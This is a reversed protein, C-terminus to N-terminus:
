KIYWREPNVEDAYSCSSYSIGIFECRISEKRRLTGNGICINHEIYYFINGRLGVTINTWGHWGDWGNIYMCENPFLHRSSVCVSLECNVCLM